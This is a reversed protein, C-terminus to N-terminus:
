PNIQSNFDNLLEQKDSKENFTNDWYQNYVKTSVESTQRTDFDQKPKSALTEATWLVSGSYWAKAKAAALALYKKTLSDVKKAEETIRVGFAELYWQELINKTNILEALTEAEIIAEDQKATALDELVKLDAALETERELQKDALAKKDAELEDTKAKIWELIKDTKDKNLEITAELRWEESLNNQLKLLEEQAIREQELLGLQEVSVRKKKVQALLLKKDVIEQELIDKLRKGEDSSTSVQRKKSQLDSIEKEVDLRSQMYASLQGESDLANEAIDQRITFIEDQLDRERQALDVNWESQVEKLKANMEDIADTIKKIDAAGKTGVKKIEDQLKEYEANLDQVKEEQKVIEKNVDWYAREWDEKLKELDKVQDDVADKLAKAVDKIDNKQKKSSGGQTASYSKVETEAASIEKQLKKFEESWVDITQLKTKMADLEDNMSKLTKTEKLAEETQKKLESGFKQSEIVLDSYEKSTSKVGGKIVDLKKDIDKSARDVVLAMTDVNKGLPDFVGELEKGTNEAALALTDLDAKSRKFGPYDSVSEDFNFKVKLLDPDNFGLKEVLLDWVGPIAGIAAKIGRVMLGPLKNLGQAIYGPINKGFVLFNEWLDILADVTGKVLFWISLLWLKSLSVFSKGLGFLLDGASKVLFWLTFIWVGAMIAFSEGLAKLRVWIDLFFYWIDTLANWVDTSFNNWKETMVKLRFDTTNSVEELAENLAGQNESLTLTADAFKDYQTTALAVILKNAEQEPILKRLLELNGDTADYVDKIVALFWKEKIASAWVEVGLEKFLRSSETTPSALSAIAGNLQTTVASANGTVGTLASYTAFLEETTIGAVKVTSTLNQLAAAVEWITTQGLKNTIFFKEAIDNSENLDLWYKKVVAIIGNFATTTDTSAALAVRGSLELIENISEFEVGASSINFATDVLEDKAIGYKEAVDKIDEGLGKLQQKSVWAVTNIRALGKEFKAFNLVADKAFTAVRDLAFLGVMAVGAKKFASSMGGTSKTLRKIKSESKDIEKQLKKFQKSWVEVGWLKKRLEALEQNMWDLTKTSKKVNDTTKKTEKDFKKLSATSKDLNQDLNKIDAEVEVTLTDIVVM